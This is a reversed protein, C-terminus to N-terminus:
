KEFRKREEKGQRQGGAALINAPLTEAHKSDRILKKVALRIVGSRDLGNFSAIGDLDDLDQREFRVSVGEKRKIIKKMDLVYTKYIKM